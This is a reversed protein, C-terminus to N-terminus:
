SEHAQMAYTSIVVGLTMREKEWLWHV